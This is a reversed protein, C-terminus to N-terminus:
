EEMFYVIMSTELIVPLKWVEWYIEISFNKKKEKKLNAKTIKIAHAQVCSFLHEQLDSANSGELAQDVPSQSGCLM